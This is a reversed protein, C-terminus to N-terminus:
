QHARIEAMIGNWILAGLERNLIDRKEQRDHILLIVEGEPLYRLGSLAFHRAIMSANVLSNDEAEMTKEGVVRLTIEYRPNKETM